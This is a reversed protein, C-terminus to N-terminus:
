VDTFCAISSYPHKLAIYVAAASMGMKSAMFGSKSRGSSILDLFVFGLGNKPPDTRLGRVLGVKSDSAISLWGVIRSAVRFKVLRM